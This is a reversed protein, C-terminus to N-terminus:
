LDGVAEGGEEGGSSAADGCGQMASPLVRLKASWERAGGGPAGGETPTEMAETSGGVDRLFRGLEDDDVGM